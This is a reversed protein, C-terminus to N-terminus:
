ETIRKQLQETMAEYGVPNLHCNDADFAKELGGADRVATRMNIIQVGFAEATEATMRNFEEEQRAVALEAPCQVVNLLYYAARPFAEKLEALLKKYDAFAIEPNRHRHLDNFGLNLFIREPEPLQRVTDMFPLWSPFRTGGIGINLCTENPFVEYFKKGCFHEDNWFEFYSDGIFLNELRKVNPLAQLQWELVDAWHSFYTEMDPTYGDPLMSADLRGQYEGVLELGEYFGKVFCAPQNDADVYFMIGSGYIWDTQRYDFQGLYFARRLKRLPELDGIQSLLFDQRGFGLKNYHTGDFYVDGYYVSGEAYRIIGFGSCPKKEAYAAKDEPVFLHVGASFNEFAKEYQM